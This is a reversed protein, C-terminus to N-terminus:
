QATPLSPTLPEEESPMRSDFPETCPTGPTNATREWEEETLVGVGQEGLLRSEGGAGLMGKLGVKRGTSGCAKRRPQGRVGLGQGGVGLGGEEDEM